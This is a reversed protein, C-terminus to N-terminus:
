GVDPAQQAKQSKDEDWLPHGDDDWLPPKEEHWQPCKNRTLSEVVRMCSPCVVQVPIAQIHRQGYNITKIRRYLEYSVYADIAAYDLNIKALPKWEWYNQRDNPVNKTDGYSKDIIAKALDGV